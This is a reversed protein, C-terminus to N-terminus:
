GLLELRGVPSVVLAGLLELEVITAGLAAASLGTAEAVEELDAAGRALAEVVSRASPGLADPLQRSSARSRVPARVPARSRAGAPSAPAEPESGLLALVDTEDLCPRAGARLLANSGEAEGVPPVRPVVLVPVGAARAHAATSLAGSRSPAAVVVVARSLGAIIRNRDLFTHARPTYRDELESVELGGREVVRAYLTRHAAPYPRALGSAHVVVTPAGADLAGLHAAHDIGMAGGSVIVCGRSALARALDRALALGRESASRTGVVAVAREWAPLMGRVRLRPPPRPLRRLSAPYKPDDERLDRPPELDDRATV